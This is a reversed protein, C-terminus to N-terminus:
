NNIIMMMLLKYVDGSLALTGVDHEGAYVVGQLCDPGEVGGLVVKALGDLRGQAGCFVAASKRLALWAEFRYTEAIEKKKKGIQM